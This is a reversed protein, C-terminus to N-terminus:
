RNNAIVPCFLCLDKENSRNTQQLDSTGLISRKGPNIDTATSAQEANTKTQKGEDEMEERDRRGASYM